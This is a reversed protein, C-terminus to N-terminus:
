AEPLRLVGSLGNITGEPEGGRWPRATTNVTFFARRSTAVIQQIPASQQNQYVVVINTSLRARLRTRCSRTSKRPRSTSRRAPSTISCCKCAAWTPDVGGQANVKFSVATSPGLQTGKITILEGPAVAGRGYSASSTLTVPQPLPLALVTLTVNVTIPTALV